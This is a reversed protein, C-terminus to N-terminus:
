QPTIGADKIVKAFREKESKVHEALESPSSAVLEIGLTSLRKRVSDQALAKAADSAIKQVIVNPTRAPAFLGFWTTVDYGALTEAVPPLDPAASSRTRGSVALGRVAGSQAHPQLTPVNEFTMSVEGALLAQVSPNGGKYPVHLIDIGAMSKFLEGAIHVSTGIGASSFTLKGPQAKALAILEKVSKAQVSPHVALMSPTAGILSIAALDSVPDYPLPRLSPAITLAGTVGLVLTYGDPPSKAVFDVGIAGGAGIRNDVVVPQGWSRSLEDALLRGLVDAGGGPPYPVVIRVPREPYTTQANSMPAGALLACAALLSCLLIRV